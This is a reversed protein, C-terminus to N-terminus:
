PPSPFRSRPKWPDTLLSLTGESPDYAVDQLVELARDVASAALQAGANSRDAAANAKLSRERQERDPTLASRAENATHRREGIREPATTTTSFGLSFERPGPPRQLVSRAFRTREYDMETSVVIVNRSWTALAAPPGFGVPGLSAFGSFGDNDTIRATVSDIGTIEHYRADTSSTSHSISGSHIGEVMTDDVATVEVVQVVNWHSAHFVLYANSTNDADAATLQDDFNQFHLTVDAVPKDRLPRGLLAHYTDTAGGETVATSEGTERIMLAPLAPLGIPDRNNIVVAFDASTVRGDGDLDGNRGRAGPLPDRYTIVESFDAATVRADADGDGALKHFVFQYDAVLANGAQDTTTAAELAAIYYGDSNNNSLVNAMETATLDWTVASSGNGALTAASIGVATSTTLNFLSLATVDALTVSESFEISIASLNSRQHAGNNVVNATAIPV